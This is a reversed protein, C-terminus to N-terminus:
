NDAAQKQQAVLVKHIADRALIPQDEPLSIAFPLETATPNEPDVVFTLLNRHHRPDDGELCVVPVVLGDLPRIMPFRAAFHCRCNVAHQEGDLQVHMSPHTDGPVPRYEEMGMMRASIRSHQELMNALKRKEVKVQAQHVEYAEQDGQQAGSVLPPTFGSNVQM